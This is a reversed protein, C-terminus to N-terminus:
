PVLLTSPSSNGKTSEASGSYALSILISPSHFSASQLMRNQAFLHYLFAPRIRDIDVDVHPRLVGTRVAHEAHHQCDITLTDDIDLRVDAVHVTARLLKRLVHVVARGDAILVPGVVQRLEQCLLGVAHGDFLQKIQLYRLAGLVDADDEALQVAYGAM